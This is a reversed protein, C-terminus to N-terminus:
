KKVAWVVLLVPAFLGLIGALVEPFGLAAFVAIGIVWAGCLLLIGKM